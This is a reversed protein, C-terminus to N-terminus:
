PPEVNHTMSSAVLEDSKLNLVSSLCNTIPTVKQELLMIVLAPFDSKGARIIVILNSISSLQKQLFAQQGADGIFVQKIQIFIPFSM